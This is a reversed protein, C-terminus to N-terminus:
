DITLRCVAAYLLKGSEIAAVVTLAPRPEAEGTLLGAVCWTYRM